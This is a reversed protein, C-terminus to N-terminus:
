NFAARAADLRAAADDSAAQQRRESAEKEAERLASLEREVDDLIRVIKECWPGDAVWKGNSYVTVLDGSSMKPWPGGHAASEQCGLVLQADPDTAVKVSCYNNVNWHNAFLMRERFIGRPHNRFASGYWYGDLRRNGILACFRAASPAEIM